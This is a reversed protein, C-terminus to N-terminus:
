DARNVIEDQFIDAVVLLLDRILDLHKELDLLSLDPDNGHAIGHRWGVVENDIKLRYKHLKDLKFSMILFNIKIKEFNLNSRALLVNTDYHKAGHKITNKLNEVFEHKAEISHNKDRLSDFSSNLLGLLLSWDITSLPKNLRDLFKLYTKACENYFGEWHAYSLVIASKSM